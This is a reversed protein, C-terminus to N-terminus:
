SSKPKDRKALERELAAARAEHHRLVGIEKVMETLQEEFEHRAREMRQRAARRESASAEVVRALEAELAAIRSEYDRRLAGADDGTTQRRTAPPRGAGATPTSSAAQRAASRPPTAERAGAPTRAAVAAQAALAIRSALSERKPLPKSRSARAAGPGPGTAVSQIERPAPSTEGAGATPDSTSITKAKRVM